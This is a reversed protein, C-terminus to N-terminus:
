QPLSMRKERKKDIANNSGQINPNHTLHEVVTSNSIALLMIFNKVMKDRWKGTAFHLGENKTNHTLQKVVTSRDNAMTILLKKGNKEGPAAPTL